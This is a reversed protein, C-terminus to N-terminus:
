FGYKAHSRKTSLSQGILKLLIGTLRTTVNAQRHLPVSYKNIVSNSKELLPKRHVLKSPSGYMTAFAFGWLNTAKLQLYNHQDKMTEFWTNKYDGLKWLSRNKIFDIRPYEVRSGNRTNGMLTDDFPNYELGLFTLNRLWAGHRKVYGSKKISLKAGLAMLDSEFENINIPDDSMLLGDDLYMTLEKEWKQYIPYLALASLLPSLGFGQPIGRALPQEEHANYTPMEELPNLGKFDTLEIRKILNPLNLIFRKISSSKIEHEFLHGIAEGSFPKDSLKIEKILSAFWNLEAAISRSSVWNQFLIPLCGLGRESISRRILGLTLKYSNEYLQGLEIIRQENLAASAHRLASMIWEIQPKPYDIEKLITEVRDWKVTDFYKALDFEYIFKKHRMSLIRDWAQAPGKNPLVGHQVPAM